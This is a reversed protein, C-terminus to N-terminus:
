AAFHIPLAAIFPSIEQKQFYIGLFGQAKYQQYIGYSQSTNVALAQASDDYYNSYSTYTHTNYYHNGNVDRLGWTENITAKVTATRMYYNDNVYRWIHVVTSNTSVALSLKAKSSSSSSPYAAGALKFLANVVFKVKGGDLSGLLYDSLKSASMQLGKEVLTSIKTEDYMEVTDYNTVLISTHDPKQTAVCKAMKVGNYTYYTISFTIGEIAPYSISARASIDPLTNGYVYQMAQENTLFVCGLDAAEKKLEDYEDLIQENSADVSMTRSSNETANTLMALDNMRALIDDIKNVNDESVESIEIGLDPMAIEDEASMEAASVSVSSGVVGLVMFLCLLLSLKKM